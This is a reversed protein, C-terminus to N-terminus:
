AAGAGLAKARDALARTISRYLDSREERLRRMHPNKSLEVAALDAKSARSILFAIGQSYTVWDLTGDGLDTPRPALAAFHDLWAPDPAAPGTGRKEVQESAVEGTEPDFSEAGTTDVGGHRQEFQELQTPESQARHEIAEPTAGYDAEVVVEGHHDLRVHRGTDYSDALAAAKQVSLPLYKVIRRIVTKRGMETYHAGWPAEATKNYRVATQWGQSKDRVADIEARTMMDWHLGGNKFLAVAYFGIVEGRPKRLDFTHKPPDGSGFDFEFIDNECVEHAAISSVEGSNRALSILGRYGPILQVKNGFPVLYAQGLVGDPELGLQACTFIASYLSTRDCDLLRPTNHVATMAVRLLRDPTLHKPLAMALQPRMKELAYRVQDVPKVQRQQLATGTESM